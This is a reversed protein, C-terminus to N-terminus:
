PGVWNALDRHLLRYEWLGQGAYRREVTHGGFRPKRLDRLRASVSAEPQGTTAGIEALTRWQSDVMLERVLGLQRMLRSGDREADFTPGGFATLQEM